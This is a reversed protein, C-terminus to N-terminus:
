AADSKLSPRKAGRQKTVEREEIRGHELVEKLYVEVQSADKCQRHMLCAAYPHYHNPARLCMGCGSCRLKETM